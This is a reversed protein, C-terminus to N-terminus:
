WDELEELLKELNGDDLGLALGAITALDIDGVINAFTVNRDDELVMIMLGGIGDDSRLSSITVVENRGRVHVLRNWNEKELKKEIQEIYSEVRDRLDRDFSFSKVRISRIRSLLRSLSSDGNTEAEAAYGLLSPGLDLVRVEEAGEPIEIMSLDIYGPVKEVEIEKAQVSTVLLCIASLVVLLHKM